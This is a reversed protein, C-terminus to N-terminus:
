RENGPSAGSSFSPSTAPQTIWTIERRRGCQSLRGWDECPNRYLLMSYYTCYFDMADPWDGFVLSVDDWRATTRTSNELSFSRTAKLRPNKASNQKYHRTPKFCLHEKKSKKAQKEEGNKNKMSLLSTKHAKKTDNGCSFSTPIKHM